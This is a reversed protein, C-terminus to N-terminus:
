KLSIWYKEDIKWFFVICLGLSAYKMFLCLVKQFSSVNEKGSCWFFNFDMFFYPLCKLFDSINEFFDHNKLFISIKSFKKSKNQMRFGISFWFKQIKWFRSIKSQKSFDQNKWFYESKKLKRLSNKISTLIKQHEPFSFSLEKWYTNRKNIFYAERPRQISKKSFDIFFVSNWQFLM